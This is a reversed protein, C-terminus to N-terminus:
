KVVMVPHCAFSVSGEKARGRTRTTYYTMSSSSVKVDRQEPPAQHYHNLIAELFALLKPLLQKGRKTVADKMLGLASDKPDYFESDVDCSGSLPGPTTLTLAHLSSEESGRQDQQHGDPERERGGGAREREKKRERGRDAETERHQAHRITTM